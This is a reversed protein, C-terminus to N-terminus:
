LIWWQFSQSRARRTSSETGISSSSSSSCTTHTSSSRISCDSTNRKESKRPSKRPSKSSSSRRDRSLSKMPSKVPKNACSSRSSSSSSGYDSASKRRPSRRASTRPSKSSNSRRRPSKFNGPSKMPSIINPDFEAFPVVMTLKDATTATITPADFLREPASNRQVSKKPSRKPSRIEVKVIAPAPETKATTTSREDDRPLDWWQFTTVINSGDDVTIETWQSKETIETWQSQNFHEYYSEEEEFYDEEEDWLLEDGNDDLLISLEDEEDSDLEFWAKVIPKSEEEDEDEEQLGCDILFASHRFEATEDETYFLEDIMHDEIRPIIFEDTVLDESWSIRIPMTYSFYQRNNHQM